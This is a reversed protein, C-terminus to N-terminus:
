AGILEGSRNKAGVAVVPRALILIDDNVHRISSVSVPLSLLEPWRRPRGSQKASALVEGETDLLALFRVGDNRMFDSVVKQLALGRKQHLDNQVALSMAQGIRAAHRLDSHRLYARTTDYYFWGGAATVCIVVFTLVLVAKLQLGVRIQRPYARMAKINGCYVFLYKLARRRGWCLAGAAIDALM